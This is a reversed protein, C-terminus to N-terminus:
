QLTPTPPIADMPLLWRGVTSMPLTGQTSTLLIYDEYGPPPPGSPPLRLGDQSDRVHQAYNACALIESHSLERPMIPTDTIEGLEVGGKYREVVVRMSYTIAERAQKEGGRKAPLNIPDDVGMLECYRELAMLHAVERYPAWTKDGAKWAIQFESSTGKGQHDVIADVIWEDPRKGFGPVQSPLRGPFRRDDEPVHPKLLSAHFASRIGRKILEENARVTNEIRSAIIADHASMVAMKMQEAFKQVGPFEDEVKWTLSSPNRGYNLQFPSFGTTSSRASNIAFEVAPLKTVWDRQDPSVCQRIMQTITRNARETAGDTQPHFASSM